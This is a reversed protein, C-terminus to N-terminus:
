NEHGTAEKAAIDQALTRGDPWFDVSVMANFLALEETNALLSTLLAKVCMMKDISSVQELEVDVEIGSRETDLDRANLLITGKM